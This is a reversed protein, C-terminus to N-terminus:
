ENQPIEDLVRRKIDLGNRTYLLPVLIQDYNDLDLFYPREMQSTSFELRADRLKAIVSAKAPATFNALDIFAGLQQTYEPVQMVTLTDIIGHLRVMPSLQEINSSKGKPSASLIFGAGSVILEDEVKLQEPRCLEEHMRQRMPELLESKEDASLKLSFDLNTEIDSVTKQLQAALDTVDSYERVREGFLELGSTMERFVREDQENM